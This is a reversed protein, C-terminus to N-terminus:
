QIYRLRYPPFKAAATPWFGPLVLRGSLDVLESAQIEHTEAADGDTGIWAIKGDKVAMARAYPINDDATFIKGNKYLIDYKKM